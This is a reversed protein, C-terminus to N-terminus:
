TRVILDDITCGYLTSLILMTNVSPLREGREWAYVSREDVYLATAVKTVSLGIEKRKSKLTAGTREADVIPLSM